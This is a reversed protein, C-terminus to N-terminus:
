SNLMLSCVVFGKSVTKDGSVVWALKLLGQPMDEYLGMQIRIPDTAGVAKFVVFRKMVQFDCLAEKIKPEDKDAINMCNLFENRLDIKTGSNSYLKYQSFAIISISLVAFATNRPSGSAVCIAPFSWDLFTDTRDSMGPIFPMIVNPIVTDSIKLVPRTCTRLIVQILMDSINFFGWVMIVEYETGLEACVWDNTAAWLFIAATGAHHLIHIPAMYQLAVAHEELAEPIADMEEQGEANMVRVYSRIRFFARVKRLGIFTVRVLDLCVAVFSQTHASSPVSYSTM